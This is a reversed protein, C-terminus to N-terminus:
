NEVPGRWMPSKPGGYYRMAGLRVPQQPVLQARSESVVSRAHLHRKHARAIADGSIGATLVTAILTLYGIRVRRATMWTM